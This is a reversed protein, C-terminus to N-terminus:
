FSYTLHLSPGNFEIDFGAEGRSRRCASILITTAVFLELIRM